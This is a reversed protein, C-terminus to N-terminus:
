VNIFSGDASLTDVTINANTYTIGAAEITSIGLAYLDTTNGQAILKNSALSIIRGGQISSLGRSFVAGTNGIKINGTPNDIIINGGFASSFCNGSGTTATTIISQTASSNTIRLSFGSRAVTFVNGSAVEYNYGNFDIILNGGNNILFGLTSQNTLHSIQKLTVVDNMAYNKLYDRAEAYGPFDGGSGVTFEMASKINVAFAEKAVIKFDGSGDRGAIREDGVLETLSRTIQDINKAM